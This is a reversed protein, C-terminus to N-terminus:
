TNTVKGGDKMFAAKEAPSLADFEARTKTKGGGAGPAGAGPAGGGSSAAGKFAMPYKEEFGKILADIGIGNGAGDIAPEGSELLVQVGFDGDKEIVKVRQRVHPLLLEVNGKRAEIAKIAENDILLTRLKSSLKENTSVLGSKEAEHEAVMQQKVSDIRRVVEAENDINGKDWEAIREVAKLADDVGIGSEEFRKFPALAKELSEVTGSEKVLASKLNGTDVLEFSGVAETSLEFAGGGEVEAYAGRYNEPVADLSEVRTKLIDPM